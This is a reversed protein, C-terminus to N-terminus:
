NCTSGAICFVINNNYEKNMYSFIDVVNFTLMHLHMDTTLM